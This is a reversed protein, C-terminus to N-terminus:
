IFVICALLCVLSLLLGIVRGAENSRSTQQDDKVEQLVSHMATGAMTENFAQSRPGTFVGSFTTQLYISYLFEPSPVFETSCNVINGGGVIYLFHEFDTKVALDYCLFRHNKNMASCRQTFDHAVGDRPDNMEAYGECLDGVCSWGTCGYIIATSHVNSSPVDFECELPAAANGANGDNNDDNTVYSLNSLFTISNGDDHGTYEPPGFDYWEQCSYYHCRNDLGCFQVSLDCPSNSCNGSGQYRPYSNDDQAGVLLLSISLTQLSFLKM